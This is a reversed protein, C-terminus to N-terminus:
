GNRKRLDTWFDRVKRAIDKPLNHDEWPTRAFLVLLYDQTQLLDLEDGYREHYAKSNLRLSPGLIKEMDKAQLGEWPIGRHHWTCNGYSVFAGKRYGQEVIHHIEAHSDALNDLLCPICGTAKISENRTLAM